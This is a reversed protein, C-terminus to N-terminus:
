KSSFNQLKPKPMVLGEALLDKYEKIEELTKPRSSRFVLKKSDLSYFAGGDYGLDFTLQKLNSGDADMRWLEMDGSRISTFVIYKGDPFLVAEADYGDYDTLQKVINGELDAVFIDFEPYIPWNYKGDPRPEPKKPCERNGLHTSAYLIHEGDPMFFSCTTRGLGTSVM